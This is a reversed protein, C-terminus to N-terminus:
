PNVVQTDWQQGHWQYRSRTQPDGRLELHDVMLPELWVLCFTPLPTVPDPPTSQVAAAQPSRPQGPHPWAFQVRAPESLQQWAQSRTQQLASDPQDADIVTLTGAIRFQERTKPFYWCIEGWNQHAIDDLKASRRDTIFQIMDRDGGFGRFVVTRNAPRGDAHVTAIQFYRSDRQSRNHHLARALPSRWPTASM